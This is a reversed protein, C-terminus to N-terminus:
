RLRGMARLIAMRRMVESSGPVGYFNNTFQSQDWQRNDYAYSSAPAYAPAPAAMLGSIAQSLSTPFVSGSDGWHVLEPGKEGVLSWSGAGFSGGGAMGRMQGMGFKQANQNMTEMPGQLNLLERIKAIAQGVWDVVSKIVGLLADLAKGITDGIFKGIAPGEERFFKALAELPPKAYKDWIDALLQALPKLVKEWLDSAIQKIAPLGDKIFWNYLSELAPKVAEWIGKLLDILPSAVNDMFWSIASGIAPLADNVFWNFLDTLYPSVDDWIRIL